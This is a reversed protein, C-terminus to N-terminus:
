KEHCQFSGGLNAVRRELCVDNSCRPCLDADSILLLVISLINTSRLASMKIDKRSADASARDAVVELAKLKALM